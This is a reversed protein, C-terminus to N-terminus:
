SFWIEKSACGNRSLYLENITSHFLHMVCPWLNSYSPTVISNLRSPSMTALFLLLKSPSSIWLPTNLLKVDQCSSVQHLYSHDKRSYEVRTWIRRFSSKVRPKSYSNSTKRTLLAHSILISRVIRITRRSERCFFMYIDHFFVFIWCRVTTLIVNIVKLFYEKLFEAAEDNNTGESFSDRFGRQM